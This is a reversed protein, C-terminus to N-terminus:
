RTIASMHGCRECTCTLVVKAHPDDAIRSLVDRLDSSSEFVGLIGSKKNLMSEMELASFKQQAMFTYSSEM